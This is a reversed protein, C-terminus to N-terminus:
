YGKKGRGLRNNLRRAAEAEDAKKSAAAADASAARNAKRRAMEAANADVKAVFKTTAPLSKKAM